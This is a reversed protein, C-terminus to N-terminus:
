CVLAPMRRPLARHFGDRGHRRGPQLSRGRRRLRPRRKGERESRPVLMEVGDVRQYWDPLPKKDVARINTFGQDHFYRVLAGGIFGGAGAIVILDDKKLNPDTAALMNQTM